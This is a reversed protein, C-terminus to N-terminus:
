RRGRRCGVSGRPRTSDGLGARVRRGRPCSRLFATVRAPAARMVAHAAAAAGAGLALGRRRGAHCAPTRRCEELVGEPTNKRTQREPPPHGPGPPAWACTGPARPRLSRLRNGGTEDAAYVVRPRSVCCTGGLTDSGNNTPGAPTGPPRVPAVLSFHLRRYILPWPHM